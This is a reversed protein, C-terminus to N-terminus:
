DNQKENSATEKGTVGNIPTAREWMAGEDLEPEKPVPPKGNILNQVFQVARVLPLTIHPPKM